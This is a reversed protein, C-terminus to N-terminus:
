PATAPGPSGPPEVAAAERHASEAEWLKSNMEGRAKNEAEQCNALEEAASRAEAAYRKADEQRGCRERALDSQLRALRSEEKEKAYFTLANRKLRDEDKPYIQLVEIIGERPLCM